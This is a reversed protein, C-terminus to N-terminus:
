GLIPNCVMIAKCEQGYETGFYSYGSCFTACAENTMSSSSTSTSALARANTAETQCGYYDYKGISYKNSPAAITEGSWFLSLRSPGGCAEASNGSCTM